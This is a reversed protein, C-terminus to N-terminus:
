EEEGATNVKANEAKQAAWAKKFKSRYRQNKAKKQRNKM